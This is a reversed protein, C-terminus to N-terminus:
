MNYGCLICLSIPKDVNDRILKYLSNMQDDCRQMNLAFFVESCMVNIRIQNAVCNISWICHRECRDNSLQENYYILVFNAKRWLVCVSVFLLVHDPEIFRSLEFYQFDFEILFFVRNLHSNRLKFIHVCLQVVSSAMKKRFLGM